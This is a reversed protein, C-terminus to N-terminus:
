FRFTATAGFFSENEEGPLAGPRSELPGRVGLDFEFVSVERCRAQAREVASYVDSIASVVAGMRRMRNFDSQEQGATPASQLIEIAAKLKEGASTIAARAAMPSQANCTTCTTEIRLGASGTRSGVDVGARASIRVHPIANLTISLAFNGSASASLNFVISSSGQLPVPLRMRLSSPLDVTFQAPGFNFRFTTLDGLNLGGSRPRQPVPAPQTTPANNMRLAPASTGITPMAGQNGMVCNAARNAEHEDSAESRPLSFFGTSGSTQQVVHTLEHALLNQGLGSGPSYRGERFVVDSGVTYALANVARASAAAKTDAHVRVKGFDHGFRPEFHARTQSDLPTGSSRLVEHVIPLASMLENHGSARSQLRKNRCSECEGDSGASGGCACKRQLLGRMVPSFAPKKEPKATTRMLMNM